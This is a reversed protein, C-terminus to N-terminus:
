QISIRKKVAEIERKATDLLTKAPKHNPMFELASEANSIACSYNKQTYCSNAKEMLRNVKANTEQQQQELFEAQQLAAIAASNSPKITRAQQYNLIACTYDTKKMCIDGDSILANFQENDKQEQKEQLDMAIKATSYHQQLEANGPQLTLGRDAATIACKYNSTTLCVEIESLIQNVKTNTEFASIADELLKARPSNPNAKRISALNAKACILDNNESLCRNAQELLATERQKALAAEAMELATGVEPQQPDLDLATKYSDIACEFDAKLSCNEAKGIAEVIANEVDSPRAYQYAVLGFALLLMLTTLASYLPLRRKLTFATSFTNVEATRHARELSLTALLAAWQRKNLSSIKDPLLGSKLAEDAALRNYPHKGALMEYVIIGLAYIDDSPHPDNLEMMELSAYAPTLAGLEGADFSDLSDTALRAIGFDLIKAGNKTIFINGPKLDCHIIGKEHAYKLANCIDKILPLAESFPMGQNRYQRLFIDLPQGELLEMTLYILDNDRDFDHVTVINPHALLHSRSAERQLTIFAQPHDKFNENLVKVAMYPNVDNAEVKRLDKAKYVTGMGGAGLTQELVFRKKLVIKNNELAQDAEKKARAFGQSSDQSRISKQIRTLAAQRESKEDPAHSAKPKGSNTKSLASNKHGAPASKAKRPKLQTKASKDPLRDVSKLRTHEAEKTAIPESKSALRTKDPKQDDTSM